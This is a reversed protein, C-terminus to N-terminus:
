RLEITMQALYGIFTTVMIILIVTSLIHITYEGIIPNYNNQLIFFIYDGIIDIIVFMIGLKLGEVVENSNFNRIYLISFFTTIIIICAPMIINLYPLDMNNPAYKTLLLTILYILVWIIVGYTIALKYKM